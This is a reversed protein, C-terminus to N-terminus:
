PLFTMLALYTEMKDDCIEISRAKNFMRIGQQEIMKAIYPDKDLYIIFDYQKLSPKLSGDNELHLGLEFAKKVEIEVDFLSFEEKLRSVMHAYSGVQAYSNIVILGKRM